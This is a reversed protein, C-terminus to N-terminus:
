EHRRGKRSLFFVLLYTVVGAIVVWMDGSINIM